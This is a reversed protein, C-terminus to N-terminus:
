VKIKGTVVHSILATKFESLREISGHVVAEADRFAIIKKGIYSVIQVQEKLPPLCIPEAFYSHLDLNQIGTNQKIYQKVFGSSYLSFLYAGMFFPNVTKQNVRVIDIFNACTMREQGSFHVVRGVPTKEGGGSKELLLDGTRLIKSDAININNRVTEVNSFSLNDFDFDAVRLCKIDHMDGRAEDGWIGSNVSRIAHKIKKVVWGNPIQGIWPIGSDILKAKPDLGKTVAHNIVATRKEHLLDIQKKKKEIISDILETKEDLYAAIKQQTTIDPIVVSVGYFKQPYLRLRSDIVGTSNAKFEETYLKTRFLYHFYRPTFDRDNLRYVAYAPSVIGDVETVGLGTKWALMTNIILDGKKCKKYGDLSEARSEFQEDVFAESRPKVGFYESVSLLTESGDKSLETVERLIHRAKEHTWETPITGLWEIGSEQYKPYRDYKKTLKLSTM